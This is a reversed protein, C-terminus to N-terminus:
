LAFICIGKLLAIEDEELKKLYIKVM